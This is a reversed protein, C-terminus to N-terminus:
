WASRPEIVPRMVGSLTTWNRPIGKAVTGALNLCDMRRWVSESLLSLSNVLNPYTDSDKAIM